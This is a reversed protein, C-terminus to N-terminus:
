TKIQKKRWDWKVEISNDNLSIKTASSEDWSAEIEEESYEGTLNLINSSTETATEASQEVAENNNEGKTSQYSKCATLSIITVCLIISLIKRINM